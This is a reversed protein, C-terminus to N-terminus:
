KILCVRKLDEEFPFGTVSIKKEDIWRSYLPRNGDNFLESKSFGEKFWPHENEKKTGPESFCVYLSLDDCIQLFRFHQELLQDNVM